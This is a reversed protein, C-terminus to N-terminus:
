KQDSALRELIPRWMDQESKAFAIVQDPTM